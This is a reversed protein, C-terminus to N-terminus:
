YKFKSKVPDPLVPNRLNPLGLEPNMDNGRGRGWAPDTIVPGPTGRRTRGQSWGGRGSIVKDAAGGSVGGGIIAGIWKERETLGGPNKIWKGQGPDWIGDIDVAPNGGVTEGPYVPIIQFNDSGGYVPRVRGGIKIRGIQGPYKGNTHSDISEQNNMLAWQVQNTDNTASGLHDNDLGESDTSKLHNNDCYAYWNDGAQASDSSIFRGVSADYYRHGLLQLGSDSDTQYQGKGVFGFPTPTTGTRSVVMGFGDYLVSDTVTQSTNTIGRTSGLADGHYFKSTTGRRESLGPTYVAAGDKLM